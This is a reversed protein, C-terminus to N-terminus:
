WWHRRRAYLHAGTYVARTAADQFIDDYAAQSEMMHDIILVRGSLTDRVNPDIAHGPQYDVPIDQYMALGAAMPDNTIVRQWDVPTTACLDGGGWLWLGSILAQGVQQRLQNTPLAHLALQWEHMLHIMLRADNGVPLHDDVSGGIVQAPSVTEAQWSSELCLYLAGSGGVVLQMDAPLTMKLAAQIMKQEDTTLDNVLGSMVLTRMNPSLTVPDACWWQGQRQDIGDAQARQKAFGSVDGSFGLLRSILHIYDYPNSSVSFRKSAASAQSDAGVGAPLVWTVNASSQCWKLFNFM